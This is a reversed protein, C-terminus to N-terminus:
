PPRADFAVVGECWAASGLLRELGNREGGAADCVAARRRRARDPDLDGTGGRLEVACVAGPRRHRRRTTARTRTRGAVAARRVPCAVARGRGPVGGPSASGAGSRRVRLALGATVLGAIEPGYEDRHAEFLSRHQAAAEAWSPREVRTSSRRSRPRCHYSRSSPGRLWSGTLWTRFTARSVRSRSRWSEAGRGTPCAVLHPGVVSRGDDGVRRRRRGRRFACARRRPRAVLRAPLVGDSHCTGTTARSASSGVSLPRGCLDVRDDADRDRRAGQRAAVAAVGGGSSGGPTHRRGVVPQATPAPDKFGRVPDRRDQRRHSCGCGALRAVLAERGATPHTHAFAAGGVRADDAHRRRRHHGQNGIPVGHLPGIERRSRLADDRDRAEARAAVADVTAWAELSGDTDAIRALSAEVHEVSSLTGSRIAEASEVVGLDFLEAM